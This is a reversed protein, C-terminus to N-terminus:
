NLALKFKEATSTIDMSSTIAGGIVIISPNCDVIHKLNDFNIGGAVATPLACKSNIDQLDKLPTEGRNQQDIGSHIGVYNAGWQLVKQARETKDRVNILDVLVSKGFKKASNISGKITDDDAVGLVTVIDAGNEFCFDAEYQGVDMTKLDVLIEHKPFRSRIAKVVGIGEHKLLPTGIEIIDVSSSAAEAVDLAQETTLMDLALQLKMNEGKSHKQLVLLYSM